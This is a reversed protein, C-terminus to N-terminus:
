IGRLNYLEEPSEDTCVAEIKHGEPVKDCAIVPDALSEPDVVYGTSLASGRLAAADSQFHIGQDEPTNFHQLNDNHLLNYCTTTYVLNDNISRM